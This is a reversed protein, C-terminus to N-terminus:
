GEESEPLDSDDILTEIITTINELETALVAGFARTRQPLEQNRAEGLANGSTKINEIASALDAKLETKGM